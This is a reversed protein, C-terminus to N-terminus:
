RKMFERIAGFTIKRDSLLFFHNGEIEQYRLTPVRRNALQMQRRPIRLPVMADQTGNLMLIRLDKRLSRAVATEPASAICVFGQFQQRMQSYILFGGRGGASIGM